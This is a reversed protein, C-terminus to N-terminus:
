SSAAARSRTSLGGPRLAALLRRRPLAPDGQLKPQASCGKWTRPAAGGGLAARPPLDLPRDLRLREPIAGYLEDISAAGIERLMEEKIRPVSNPIYPHATDPM